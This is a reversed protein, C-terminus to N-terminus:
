GPINRPDNGHSDKRQIRGNMGHIVLETKQNRSIIRTAAEAERKTPKNVSARQGGSRKGDWGGDPNKTVHHQKGKQEAM